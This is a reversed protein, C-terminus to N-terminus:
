NNNDKLIPVKEEILDVPKSITKPARFRYGFYVSFEDKTPIIHLRSSSFKETTYRTKYFAGFFIKKANYGGGVGYSISLFSDQFSRTTNIFPTNVDVKYFDIGASPIANANLFWNKKLVFTYYYGLQIALNVGRYENYFDRTITEDEELNKIKNTGSISYFTYGIGPMFSGSSKSQIETQSQIARMSYNKNFRYVSSGFVVQTTLDPLQIFNGSNNTIFDNSNAVYFGKYRNYEIVHNWNDFLLQLKLRFSDTDGKKEEEAESIKPRIGIRVSLFKYSLVVAFRANLSPKLDIENDNEILNFSSIENGVELKVNFQKKHDIIYENSVSDTSIAITEKTEQALCYHINILMLM